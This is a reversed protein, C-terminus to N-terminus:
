RFLVYIFNSQNILGEGGEASNINHKKNIFRTILKQELKVTDQLSKAHCLLVMSSMGREERHQRLRYKPNSTAGIYFKRTRKLSIITKVCYNYSSKLNTFEQIYKRTIGM